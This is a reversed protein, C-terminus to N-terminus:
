MTTEEEMAEDFEEFGDFEDRDDMEPTLLGKDHMESITFLISKLANMSKDKLISIGKIQDVTAIMQVTSVNQYQQSSKLAEVGDPPLNSALADYLKGEEILDYNIYLGMWGKQLESMVKNSNGALAKDLQDAQNSIVLADDQVMGYVALAPSGDMGPQGKFVYKEGERKVFMAVRELQKEIFAREKLGLVAVFIPDNSTTQQPYIGVALDGTLGQELQGLDLAVGQLYGDVLMAMGNDNLLALLGSTTIGMSVAAALDNGPFYKTYDVALKNPLLSAIKERLENNFAFDMTGEMRGNEFSQYGYINNDSLSKPSLGLMPIAGNLQRKVRPNNEIIQDGNLWYVIDKGTPIQEAFKANDRIGNGEPQLLAKLAADDGFNTVAAFNASQLIFADEDLTHLQYGEHDTSKIEPDEKKLAELMTNLKAEDAIPFLFGIKGDNATAKFYFAINGKLDIGSAAPNKVFPVLAPTEKQVEELFEEFLKTKTFAPYDAKELMSGLQILFVGSADAPVRTAMDNTAGVKPGDGGCASLFFLLGMAFVARLAKITNMM